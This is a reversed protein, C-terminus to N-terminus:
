HFEMFLMLSLRLFCLILMGPYQLVLNIRDDLSIKKAKAEEDELEFVSGMGREENYMDYSEEYEAAMGDMHYADGGAPQVATSITQIKYVKDDSPEDEPTCPTPIKSLPHANTIPKTSLPLNLESDSKIEVEILASNQIEPQPTM